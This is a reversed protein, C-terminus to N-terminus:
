YVHLLGMWTILPDILRKKLADRESHFVVDKSYHNNLFYQKLDKNNSTMNSAIDSYDM